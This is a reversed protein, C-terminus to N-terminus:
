GKPADFKTLKLYTINVFAVFESGFYLSTRVFELTDVKWNSIWIKCKKCTSWHCVNFKIQNSHDAGCYYSSSNGRGITRKGEQQM